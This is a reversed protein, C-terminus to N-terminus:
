PPGQRCRNAASYVDDPSLATMGALAARAAAADLVTIAKAPFFGALPQAAKISASILSEDIDLHHHAAIRARLAALIRATQAPNPEGLGVVHLRRALPACEFRSLYAPLATGALRTGKDLAQSLLLPGSPIQSVALDLREIVVVTESLTHAEKLLAALLNEREADFLTGALVEGLDVSVMALESPCETLRRSVAQLLNSKGTGSEGVILPLRAQGWRLLCSTVDEIEEKRGVTPQGGEQHVQESLNAGFSALLGGHGAPRAPSLSLTPERGDFGLACLGQEVVTQFDENPAHTLFLARWGERQPGGAFARTVDGDRGAYELDGDVCVVFPMGERPRKVLLNTCPKNFFERNTPVERFVVTDGNLVDTRVRMQKLKSVLSRELELM